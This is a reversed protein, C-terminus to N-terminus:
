RPGTARSRSVDVGHGDVHLVVELDRCELRMEADRIPVADLKPDIAVDIADELEEIRVADLGREEHETPDRL